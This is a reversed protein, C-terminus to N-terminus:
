KEDDMNAFCHGIRGSKYFESIEKQMFGGKNYRPEKLGLHAKSLLANLDTTLQKNEKRETDLMYLVKPIADADKAIEALLLHEWNERGSNVIAKINDLNM